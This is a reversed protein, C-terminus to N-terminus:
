EPPREHHPISALRDEHDTFAAVARDAAALITESPPQTAQSALYLASRGTQGLNGRLGHMEESLKRIEDRLQIEREAAARMAINFREEAAAMALVHREEAAALARNHRDEAENARLRANEGTKVLQERLSALETAYHSNLNNEGELELKLDASKANRYVRYIGLTGTSTIISGLAIIIRLWNEGMWAAEQSM